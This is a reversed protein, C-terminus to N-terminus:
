KFYGHRDVGPLSHIAYHASFEFVLIILSWIATARCQWRRSKEHFLAAVRAMKAALVPHSPSVLRPCAMKAGSLCRAFVKYTQGM